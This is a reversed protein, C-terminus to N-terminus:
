AKHGEVAVAVAVAVAVTVTWAHVGHTYLYLVTCTLGDAVTATDFEAVARGDAVAVADTPCRTKDTTCGEAAYSCLQRTPLVNRHM